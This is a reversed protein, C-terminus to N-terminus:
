LNLIIHDKMVNDPVTNYGALSSLSIDPNEAITNFLATLRDVLLAADKALFYSSQYEFRFTYADERGSAFLTVPYKAAANSLEFPTLLHDADTTNVDFDQYVFVAKFLESVNAGRSANLESFIDSLDFQQRSIVEVLHAHMAKTFSRFTLDTDLQYRVPLTKVFMGAVGELEHQLRGSTSIGAIVDEQGTLLALFVFFVTFLGSSVTIEEEKLMRAFLLASAKEISFFINGGADDALDNQVGTVPFNTSPIAGEFQNLWFERQSMYLETKRFQSEWLAYDKYQVPLPEPTEGNYIRILDNFLIVQTIGDCVIHHADVVLVATGKDTRIIGCRLLGPKSLDFPRIFAQVEARLSAEGTHIVAIEVDVHDAIRQVLQDDVFGFDTRLSEHRQVLATLAAAMKTADFASNLTWAVPLNFAMGTKNLQYNYYIREQAVSLPYDPMEPAKGITMLNDSHLKSIIGAQKKITLHNFLESLSIRVNFEKHIRGILKMTNLSNGGVKYFSDETSIEKEGLTQKWVELLRRETENEPAVVTHQPAQALLERYNIKGNSLLPIAKVERFDAPLMYSPLHEELYSRSLQRIDIDDAIDQRRVLFAILLENNQEDQHKMVVAQRLSDVRQLVHEIEDLEIRAGRLKVQRDERGILDINGNVLMRAIDGTKFAKAEEKTGAHITIFREKNLEPENLYGNSSYASIIYLEGPVLKECPTLDKKAILIKTGPIPRGIPMRPQAADAPQIRYFTRIMTTESPGYLNVLGIRAGFTDYWPKLEAPNIKEGSLLVHQLSGYDAAQLADHNILRFLSPVCHVLNINNENIWTTIHAAEHFTQEAPPICITGGALLPVFIDRLFADFYPSIFQSVRYGPRIDFEAIEWQIFQLLSENRGLIGKPTGTSGSTFYVYINDSEDFVPYCVDVPGKKEALIDGFLFTHDPKIKTNLGSTIFYQLGMKEVMSDLRQQPLNCDVPVFVCGANLVGIATTILSARDELYVGVMTGKGPNRELLFATIRNADALLQAYSISINNCHIATEGAFQKLCRNLEEQFVM